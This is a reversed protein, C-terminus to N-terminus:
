KIPFFDENMKASHCPEALETVSFGSDFRDAFRLFELAGRGVRPRKGRTRTGTTSSRLRCHSLSLILTLATSNLDFKM